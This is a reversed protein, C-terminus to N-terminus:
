RTVQDMGSSPNCCRQLVLNPCRSTESSMGPSVWALLGDDQGLDPLKGIGILCFTRKTRPLIRLASAQEDSTQIDGDM